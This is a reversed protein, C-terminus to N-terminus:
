FQVRPEGGLSCHDLHRIEVPGQSRSQYWIWCLVTPSWLKTDDHSHVQWLIPGSYPGKYCFGTALTESEPSPPLLCSVPSFNLLLCVILFSSPAFWTHQLQPLSIDLLCLKVVVFLHMPCKTPFLLWSCFIEQLYQSMFNVVFNLTFCCSCYFMHHFCWTSVHQDIFRVFIWNWRQMM